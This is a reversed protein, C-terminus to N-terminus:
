GRTAVPRRYLHRMHWAQIHLDRKADKAVRQIRVGVLGVITVFVINALILSADAAFGEMRFIVSHFDITDMRVWWTHELVGAAELGVPV